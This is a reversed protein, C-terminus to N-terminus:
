QVVRLRQKWCFRKRQSGPQLSFSTPKRLNSTTISTPQVRYYAADLSHDVLSCDEGFPNHRHRRRECLLSVGPWLPDELPLEISDSHERELVAVVHFEIRAVPQQLVVRCNGLRDGFQRNVIHNEVALGRPIRGAPDSVM